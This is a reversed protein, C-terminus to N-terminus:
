EIKKGLDLRKNIRKIQGPSLGGRSRNCDWLSILAAVAAGAMLMLGAVMMVLNFM